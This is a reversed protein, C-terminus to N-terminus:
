FKELSINKPQLYSHKFAEFDLLAAFLPRPTDQYLGEELDGTKDGSYNELDRLCMAVSSVTFDADGLWLGTLSFHAYVGPDRGHTLM